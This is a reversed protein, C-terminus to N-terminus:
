QNMEALLKELTAHSNMADCLTEYETAPVNRKKTERSGAGDKKVARILLNKPTHEMDIFELIQVDYGYQELLSGRLADTLLAAFREKLIGYQFLPKLLDCDIQQNLEHQCCPVSLIVKAGWGVAKALAFDTATDCAHLTIVLDAQEEGEYSRIDGQSFHLGGYGYKEALSRCHAIVDSKLDLGTMQVEFGNMINLYHYVAFTLYSKGCGFDIIRLPRGGKQRERLEPLVDRVFELFRNIQGLKKRKKDIIKGDQTQVGLDVLFPVTESGDLIYRKKRNHSLDIKKWSQASNSRISSVGKKSVLVSFSSTECQLDLQKYDKELLRCIKEAARDKEMNEHFVQDNRYEEQQFLLRGKELFPRYVLKPSIQKKRRNSVTARLTQENLNQELLKRVNEM